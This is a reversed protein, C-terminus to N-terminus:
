ISRILELDFDKEIRHNEFQIEKTFDKLHDADPLTLAKFYEPDAEDKFVDYNDLGFKLGSKEEILSVKVRWKKLKGYLREIDEETLTPEVQEDIIFRAKELEQVVVKYTILFAMAEVGNNTKYVMIKWFSLPVLLGNLKKAGKFIPGTFVTVKKDKFIASAMYFDELDNWIGANYRGVQPCANTYHFTDGIAIAKKDADTDWAPDYFRVMHGKQLNSGTYDDNTYQFYLDGDKIRGDIFWKDSGRKDHVMALSNTPGKINVVTFVPLKKQKHFAVSFNSYELAYKGNDGPNANVALSDKDVYNSLTPFAIDVGLFNKKYGNRKTWEDDHKAQYAKSEGTKPNKAYITYVEEPM